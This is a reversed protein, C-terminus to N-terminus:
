RIDIVFEGCDQYLPEGTRRVFIQLRYLGRNRNSIRITIEREREFFTRGVRAGSRNYLCYSFEYGENISFYIALEGGSEIISVRPIYSWDNVAQFFLQRLFPRNDFETRTVPTDLLQYSSNEPFHEYILMAPDIFLYDTSYKVIASRGNIYGSDWTTDILYRNGHITVMNWAHNSERSDNTNFINVGAGRAYGTVVICEIGIEMCIMYFINAYGTCVANGRRIVDVAEQSSYRGSFYTQIDYRINLAVWDHAKKVRDFDNDSNEIIYLALLRVLESPNSQRLSTIGRPIRRMVPDATDRTFTFVTEGNTGTIIVDNQAFSQINIFVGLLFIILYKKM